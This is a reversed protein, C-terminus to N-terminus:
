VPHDTEHGIWIPYPQLISHDTEVVTAPLKLGALQMAETYEEPLGKTVRMALMGILLQFDWSAGTDVMICFDLHNLFTPLDKRHRWPYTIGDLQVAEHSTVETTTILNGAGNWHNFANIWGTVLDTTNCSKQRPTVTVIDSWFLRIDPDNPKDFTAVFRSLIPHLIASYMTPEKGFQKLPELKKLLIEWDSKTGLLTVSPIGNECPFAALEESAVSPSAMMLAKALSEETSNRQVAGIQPVTGFNPRVWDLLWDTKSSQDFQLAIMNEFFFAFVLDPLGTVNRAEDWRESVEKDDRHKWMYARVQKLITIWVDQPQIALHQRKTGAEIASRVFSDHSAYIGSTKTINENPFDFNSFVAKKSLTSGAYLKLLIDSASSAPLTASEYPKPINLTLPIVTVALICCPIAAFLSARIVAKNM